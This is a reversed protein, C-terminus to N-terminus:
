GVGAPAGAATAPRELWARVMALDDATTVKINSLAGPVLAVRHGAWELASAEDTVVVGADIAARLTRRLLALPFLQPTQACWLGARDVTAAVIGDATARKVTETMPRALIAGAAGGGAFCSLLAALDDDPVCPRAADHVLVPDDAAARSDLLDLGALVSDCRRAGGEAFLVRSSRLGVLERPREDGPAHVVVVAQLSGLALLSSVSHELVTRGAIRLYQKPQGAGMRAGVGAAPVVGWLTM